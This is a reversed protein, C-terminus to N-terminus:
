EEETRFRKSLEEFSFWKDEMIDGIAKIYGDNGIVARCYKNMLSTFTCDFLKELKFICAKGYVNLCKEDLNSFSPATGCLYGGYVQGGGDSRKLSIYITACGRCESISQSEIQCNVIKDYDSKNWTYQKPLDSVYEDKNEEKVTNYVNDYNIAINDHDAKIKNFIEQIGCILKSINYHFYNFKKLTNLEKETAYVVNYADFMRKAWYYDIAVLADGSGGTYTHETNYQDIDYQKFKKLWDNWLSEEFYIKEDNFSCKDDNCHVETIIYKIM